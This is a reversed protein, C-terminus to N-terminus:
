RAVFEQSLDCDWGMEDSKGRSVSFGLQSHDAEIMWIAWAREVRTKLRGREESYAGGPAPETRRARIASWAHHIGMM